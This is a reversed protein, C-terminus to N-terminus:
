RGGDGRGGGFLVAHRQRFARREPTDAPPWALAAQDPRWLFTEAVLPNTRPWNALLAELDRDPTEALERLLGDRIESVLLEITDVAVQARAQRAVQARQRVEFAAQDIRQQELWLLWLAAAGILLTPVLLLLWPLWVRRPAPKM